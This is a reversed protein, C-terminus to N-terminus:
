IPSPEISFLATGVAFQGNLVGTVQVEVTGSPLGSGGPPSTNSIVPWNVKVGGAGHTNQMMREMDGVRQEITRAPPYPEPSLAPVPLAVAHANQESQPDANPDDPSM